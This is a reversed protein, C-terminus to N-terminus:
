QTVPPKSPTRPCGKKWNQTNLKERWYDPRRMGAKMLMNDLEYGRIEKEHPNPFKITEGNDIQFFEHDTRRALSGALYSTVFRKFESRDPRQYLAVRSAFRHDQIIFMPCADSECIPYKRLDLSIDQAPMRGIAKAFPDVAAMLVVVVNLGSIVAGALQREKARRDDIDMRYDSYPVPCSDLFDALMRTPHTGDSLRMESITRFLYYNALSEEFDLPTMAFAQRQEIYYEYKKFRNGVLPDSERALAWADIWFHYREHSILTRIALQQLEVFPLSPKIDKFHATVAAIGADILFIGWRGRYPPLDRFRFSKYFALVDIGAERVVRTAADVNEPDVNDLGLGSLRDDELRIRQLEGGIEEPEIPMTTPNLVRPAGREPDDTLRDLAPAAVDFFDGMADGLLKLLQAVL